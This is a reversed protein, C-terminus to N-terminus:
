CYAEAAIQESEVASAGTMWCSPEFVRKGLNERAHRAMLECMLGM